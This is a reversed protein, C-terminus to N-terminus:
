AYIESWRRGSTNSGHCHWRWTVKPLHSFTAGADLCALWCGWDECPNDPSAWPPPKFGGVARLLEVRALVPVPIYNQQRLLAPDFAFGFRGLPDGGPFDVAEFWPYVVDAGSDAQHAVLSELHHPLFEDDDDVYAVWETQVLDTALNRNQAAGIGEVDCRVIVFEPSRSQAAVSTLCRALLDRRPPITTVVVTLGPIM